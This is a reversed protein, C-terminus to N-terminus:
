KQESVARQLKNNPYKAWMTRPWRSPWVALFKCYHLTINQPSTKASTATTSRSCSDATLDLRWSTIWMEGNHKRGSIIINFHRHALTPQPIRICEPKKYSRIIKPILSFARIKERNSGSFTRLIVRLTRLTTHYVIQELEETYPM